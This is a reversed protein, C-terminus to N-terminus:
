APFAILSKFVFMKKAHERLTMTKDGSKDKKDLKLSLSKTKPDDGLILTTAYAIAFVGCAEEDPQVTQPKVYEVSKSSPYLMKIIQQQTATLSQTYLSDYVYVKQESHKYFICIYHGVAQDDNVAGGYLIQVDDKSTKEFIKYFEPTQYLVVDAMEFTGNYKKNVIEIFCNITGDTLYAKPTTIEKIARPFKDNKVKKVRFM